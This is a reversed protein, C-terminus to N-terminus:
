ALLSSAPPARSPPGPPFAAADVGVLADFPASFDATSSAPQADTFLGFATSRLLTQCTPCTGPDHSSSAPDAGHVVAPVTADAQASAAALRGPAATAVGHLVPLAMQAVLAACLALGISRRRIRLRIRLSDPRIM